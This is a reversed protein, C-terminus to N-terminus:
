PVPQSFNIITELLSRLMLIPLFLQYDLTLPYWQYDPPVVLFATEKVIANYLDGARDPQSWWNFFLSLENDSLRKKRNLFRQLKRSDSPRGPAARGRAAVRERYDLRASQRGVSPAAFNGSLAASPRAPRVLARAAFMQLSAIM